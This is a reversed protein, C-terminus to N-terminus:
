RLGMVVEIQGPSSPSISLNAQLRSMADTVLRQLDAEKIQDLPLHQLSM